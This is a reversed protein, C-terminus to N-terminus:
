LKQARFGAKVSFRLLLLLLLMLVSMLVNATDAELGIQQMRTRDRIDTSDITSFYCQSFFFTDM